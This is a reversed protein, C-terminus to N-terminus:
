FGAHVQRHVHLQRNMGDQDRFSIVHVQSSVTGTSKLSAEPTGYLKM